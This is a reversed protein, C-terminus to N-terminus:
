KWPKDKFFVYEFHYWLIGLIKFENKLFIEMQTNNMGIETVCLLEFNHIRSKEYWYLCIEEFSKRVGIDWYDTNIKSTVMLNIYYLLESFTHNEPIFPNECVFDPMSGLFVNEDFLTKGSKIREEDYKRFDEAQKKTLEMINLRRKYEKIFEEDKKEGSVIHEFLLESTMCNMPMKKM